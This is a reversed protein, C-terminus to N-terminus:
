NLWFKAVSQKIVETNIGAKVQQSCLIAQFDLCFLKIGVDPLLVSTFLCNTTKQGQNKMLFAIQHTDFQLIKLYERFMNRDKKKLTCFQSLWCLAAAEFYIFIVYYKYIRCM